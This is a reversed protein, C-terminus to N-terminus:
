VLEYRSDHLRIFGENELVRLVTFLRADSIHERLSQMHQSEQTLQKLVEGRVQRLSGEFSSQKTYTLSQRSSNGATQKLYTGYDMLAWYWQRPNEKDCAQTVLELIDKDDVSDKEPFFKHIFVTRINTEIFSVPQNSAYCCMAAATNRGIGPFKVLEDISLPIKGDYEETIIGATQWLFKARRNYGLGQWQRIVDGLRAKALAQVTPFIKLFASYKPIVRQVQTQQLMIESVLVHYSNIRNKDDIKRWPLDREHRAYYGWVDHQLQRIKEEM